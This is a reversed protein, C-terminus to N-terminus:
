CASRDVRRPAASTPVALRLQDGRRKVAVREGVGFAAGVVLLKADRRHLIADVGGHLHPHTQCHPTGLAMRVFVVGNRDLLIVVEVGEKILRLVHIEVGLLRM